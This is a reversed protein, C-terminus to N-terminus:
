AKHAHACMAKVDCFPTTGQVNGPNMSIIESSTVDVPCHHTHCNAFINQSKIICWNNFEHQLLSAWLGPIANMTFTLAIM